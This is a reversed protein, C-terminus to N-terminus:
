VLINWDLDTAVLPIIICIQFGCNEKPKTIATFMIYM